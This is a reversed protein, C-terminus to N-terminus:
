ATWTFESEEWQRPSHNFRREVFCYHHNRYATLLTSCRTGYDPMVIFTASLAKEWAYPIGTDPLEEDAATTTDALLAFAAERDFTSSNVLKTLEMKGRVVKPWPTDLLHNSMGYIGPELCRPESTRNSAYWLDGDDGLLLNFGAFDDDMDRLKQLFDVIPVESQLYDLVLWGRSRQHSHGDNNRVGERVNTVSAWRKNRAGFWTGGSALDRGAILAPMEEWETAPATPRSYFEDRNALVLLPMDASFKHALLITCM